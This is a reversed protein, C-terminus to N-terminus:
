DKYNSIYKNILDLYKIFKMNKYYNCLDIFNKKDKKNYSKEILYYIHDEFTASIGIFEPNNLLRGYNCNNKDYTDQNSSLIGFM